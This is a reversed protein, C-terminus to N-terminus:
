LLGSKTEIFLYYPTRAINIGSHEKAGAKRWKSAAKQAIGVTKARLFTKFYYFVHRFDAAITELRRLYHPRHRFLLLPEIFRLFTFAGSGSQTPIMLCSVM